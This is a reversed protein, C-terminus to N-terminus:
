SATIAAGSKAVRTKKGDEGAQMKVRTPKGTTPDVPMVKSAHIPAEKTIKGGQQNRANPKQHRTVTNVGEVIVKEDEALIKAIKGQKGRDKGSIVQVLDGVKLRRM